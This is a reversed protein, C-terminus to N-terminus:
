RKRMPKGKYDKLRTIQRKRRKRFRFLAFTSQLIMRNIHDWFGSPVFALKAPLNCFNLLDIQPPITFYKPNGSLRAKEFDYAPYLLVLFEFLYFIFPRSTFDTTFGLNRTPHLFKEPTILIFAFQDCFADYESNDKYLRAHLLLRMIEFDSLGLSKIGKEFTYLISVRFIISLILTNYDMSDIRQPILVPLGGKIDPENKIYNQRFKPNRLKVTIHPLIDGELVGLLSECERCFYHDRAWHHQKIETKHNKLNNRGYYEDISKKKTDIEFSSEYNRKGLSLNLLAAPILHSNKKDAPKLCIFCPDTAQRHM